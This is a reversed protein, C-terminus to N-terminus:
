SSTSSPFARSSRQRSGGYRLSTPVDLAMVFLNAKTEAHLERAVADGRELDRVALIVTAGQRALGRAIEKGIGGSAGTVVAIKGSLNTNM